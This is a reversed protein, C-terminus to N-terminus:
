TLNDPESEEDSDAVIVSNDIDTSKKRGTGPRKGGRGDKLQTSDQPLKGAHKVFEFLISEVFQNTNREASEALEDLAKLVRDDIRFLRPKRPMELLQM